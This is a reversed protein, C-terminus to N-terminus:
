TYPQAYVPALTERTAIRWGVEPNSTAQAANADSRGLTEAAAAGALRGEAIAAAVSGVGAADGAVFVGPAARLEASLVPVLGGLPGAFGLTAGAMTALAPDAQRGVAIVVCDVEYREEGIAFQEVGNSGSATLHPPPAVGGWIVEGGALLIDITVEEAEPGVGIVAFRLGPRVRWQNMLIQLARATFVGPLTAGAFPFPLDTSGSAVIMARPEVLRAQEGEVLLVKGGPYWGAALVGPRLDVGSAEAEAILRARLDGPAAAAGTEDAIRQARYRLNGGLEAQEDVLLVGAGTSAAAAAASLGAPGGGVVLVDVAESM